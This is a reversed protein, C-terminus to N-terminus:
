GKDPDDRRMAGGALAALLLFRRDSLPRSAFAHTEIAGCQAETLLFLRIASM